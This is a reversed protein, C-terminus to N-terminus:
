ESVGQISNFAKTLQELDEKTMKAGQSFAKLKAEVEGISKASKGMKEMQIAAQNFNTTDGAM